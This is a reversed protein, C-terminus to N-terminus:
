RVRSSVSRFSFNGACMEVAFRIRKVSHALYHMVRADSVAVVVVTPIGRVAVVVFEILAIYGHGILFAM